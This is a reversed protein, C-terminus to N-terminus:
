AYAAVVVVVDLRRYQEASTTIIIGIALAFLIDLEARHEHNPLSISTLPVPHAHQVRIEARHELHLPGNTSTHLQTQPRILTGKTSPNLIAYRSQQKPTLPTNTQKFLQTNVGREELQQSLYNKRLLADYTIFSFLFLYPSTECWM